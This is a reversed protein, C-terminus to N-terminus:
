LGPRLNIMFPGNLDTMQTRACSPKDAGSNPSRPHTLNIGLYREQYMCWWLCLDGTVANCELARSGGINSIYATPNDSPIHVHVGPMGTCFAHLTGFM